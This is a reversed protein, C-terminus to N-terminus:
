VLLRQDPDHAGAGHQRDARHRAPVASQHPQRGLTAGQASDGRDVEEYFDLMEVWNHGSICTPRIDNKACHLLLEKMRDHPVAHGANFGAWGTYSGAEARVLDEAFAPSCM